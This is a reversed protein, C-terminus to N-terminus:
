LSSGLLTIITAVAISVTIAVGLGCVFVLASWRTIAWARRLGSSPEWPHDGDDSGGHSWPRTSSGGMDMAPQNQRAM